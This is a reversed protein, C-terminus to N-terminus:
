ALAHHTHQVALPPTRKGCGGAITNGRVLLYERMLVDALAHHTHQVALPPTRKRQSPDLQRGTGRM